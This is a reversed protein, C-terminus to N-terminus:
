KGVFIIMYELDRTRASRGNMERTEAEADTLEEADEESAHGAELEEALLM